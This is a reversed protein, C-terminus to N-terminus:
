AGIFYVREPIDPEYMCFPILWTLNNIMSYDFLRNTPVVQVKEDTVTKASNFVKNDLIISFFYVRWGDGELVVKCRWWDSLTIVGTEESFERAMAEYESEDDEIVGGPGNLAGKQWEPRLKRILIVKKKCEDFAFGVVYKTIGNSTNRM